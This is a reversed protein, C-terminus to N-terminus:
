LEKIIGILSLANKIVVRQKGAPLYKIEKVLQRIEHEIEYGIAASAKKSVDTGTVLYEVTIGLVQAIYVAKDASPISGNERLYNEISRLSI